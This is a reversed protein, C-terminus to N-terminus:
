RGPELPTITKCIALTRGLEPGDETSTQECTFLKKPGQVYVGITGGPGARPTSYFWKGRGKLLEGKGKVHNKAPDLLADSVDELLESTARVVFRDPPGGVRVFEIKLQDPAEGSQQGVQYVAPLEICFGLAAIKTAGAPCGANAAASSGAPGGVSEPAAKQCAVLALAAALGPVLPRALM